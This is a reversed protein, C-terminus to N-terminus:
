CGFRKAARRSSRLRGFRRRASGAGGILVIAPRAERVFEDLRALGEERGVVSKAEGTRVPDAM